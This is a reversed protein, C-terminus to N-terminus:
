KHGGRQSGMCQLGGPGEVWPMEWALISSHTTMGKELPVEWSLTLGANGTNCASEESDPGGPFGMPALHVKKIESRCEEGGRLTLADLFFCFLLCFAYAHSKLM